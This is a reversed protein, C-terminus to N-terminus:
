RPSPGIAWRYLYVAHLPVPPEGDHYDVTGSASELKSAVAAIHDEGDWKLKNLYDKVPHYANRQAETTYADEVAAMNKVGRDRMANRIVAATVDSLKHGNVEVAQDALNLAFRYGLTRLAEVIVQSQTLEPEIPVGAARLEDETTMM